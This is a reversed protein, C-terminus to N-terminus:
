APPNKVPTWLPNFKEKDIKLIITGFHVKCCSHNLFFTANIVPPM